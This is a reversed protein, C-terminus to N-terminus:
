EVRALLSTQLLVQADKLKGELKELRRKRWTTKATIKLTAVLKARTPHGNLFNVEERLDRAAGQCKDALESLQKDLSKARAAGARTSTSTTSTSTASITTTAATAGLIRSSISELASASETLAPDLAGDKYVRKAVRITNLGVEIVQLINCALGLAAVPELGSM